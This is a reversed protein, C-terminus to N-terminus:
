EEELKNAINRLENAMEKALDKDFVLGIAGPTSYSEKGEYMEEGLEWSKGSKNFLTFAVKDEEDLRIVNSEIRKEMTDSGM